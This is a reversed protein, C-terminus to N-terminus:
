RLITVHGLQKHNVGEDGDVKEIFRYEMRWVYVDNPAEVGNIKGDWGNTPSESHFIIQGYRDFVNLDFQGINKGVPQWIDNTGDGNPSFTNPVYLSPQCFENVVASDRVSCDFQNTIDVYYWGYAGALIVQTSEGTSWDYDSGGNGASIVVYHPEEDLCTFFQHTGMRDPRPNFIATITDTSICYGNDVEVSYDGSRGVSISQTHEGNSWTFAAGANGADLDLMDGECLVTDQGLGVVPYSVFIAIADFTSSCNAANTVTVNYTGGGSVTIQQTTANTSWLYACGPNGADLLIPEDVCATQDTLVDTPAAQFTLAVADSGSCYGNTASVGYNDTAGAVISQTTAGTTWSYSIGPTGADLTLMQGQCLLSDPGLDIIVLPMLTVQADYTATCHDPTTITVAYTTSSDAIISPSTANTSWLYSAGVNGADLVPPSSICATVDQLVDAPMPHFAVQVDDSASCNFPTTVTVSYTNSQTVTIQQTTANTSWLYTSGPQGADLTQSTAGCLSLDPGLDIVPVAHFDVFYTKIAQCFQPDTITCVYMDSTGVSITQTTQGSSWDYTCGPFQADLTLMQGECGDLNIPTILLDFPDAITVQDSVSCGFADTVTVQYTATTDFMITPSQIDDDNLLAGNTWQILPNPVNHVVNLQHGLTTCITEDPGANVSYAPSVEITIADSMSCGSLSETITATYTTTVSPSATPAPATTSSLSGNNPTWVLTYPAGAVITSGLQSQGSQCLHLDDATVDISQLQGVTITVQANDTCGINNTATVSYTTTSMPSAVPNSVSTSSLGSNAPTWTYTIGSGSSPTAQLPVQTGPTCITTNNTIALDFAPAVTISVQDSFSCGASNQVTLTYTTNSVPSAIPTASSPNNLSAGPSWTFTVGTSNYNTIRVNDLAWNDTGAGSNSVQTWRFRTTTTQAAAPLPVDVITWNPYAAENLTTLTNWVVGDTSYQVLVNDGPEADDCPASGAAIRLAFHLAAGTSMNLPGTTAARTGAADFRLATGSVSGCLSSLAGGQITAWLASPATEFNDSAIIREVRAQLATNDGSCISSDAASALVSYIDNADVNVFVSDTVQGCGVPSTVMLKFWTDATPYAIPDPITADSLQGGPTWALDFVSPDPPPVANLQVAGFQCVDGSPLGDATIDLVPQIPVGVAWEYHMPCLSIPIEGDLIYTDNVVPTFTISSGTAIVNGPASALTWEANILPVSSSLTIPDTSCIVPPPPDDPIAVNGIAFAYSEGTGTGTAYAIFGGSAAIRHAGAAVPVKACSWGACGTYAQFLAPSVSAGDITLQGINGTPLAISVAHGTLQASVVTSWFANTSKREDPLLELMSPDGQGACNFGEMHQAVSVPLTSTICVATTAANVEQNQGANLTIPAGGDISVQTGNQEALVRYTYSAISNMPVTHFLTGWQDTPVMQEYIHDCAPCTVPVNACMSGSFVAFPRCTGSQQTAVVSTGTLDLAALASQVQYTEGTALNVTFPVGAPHGGSTNVSPTITIQTGPQTAVILLESKYFDAFGPLGRYAQARYRTGLSRTPLVQAGDTTFSQFSIATVAIDNDSQVLVGKDTVAESGTHEANNPVTITAQGNAGISFPTSWGTLPMSVTGAAGSPAAINLRLSQAGYANQMFGVWFEKGSSALPQTQAITGAMCAFLM